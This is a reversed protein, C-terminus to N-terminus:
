GLAEALLAATTAVLPNDTPANEEPQTTLVALVIPTGDPRWTIGVDNAGGYRPSGTKDALLWDAPLGRRFKETSTTNRLLWDTLRRRDDPELADGLVLRAYDLGIAHPTTTDTVRWPEASNLEPEWRDLRTVPDGISRCFRTVGTPGGLEKLLLNGAANDSFRLTADCLEAVTMGGSVNEDLGTVPSYGSRDVYAQSYHVRRALYEGDHDLDRLVAAVALTKFVSAMPFREKARYAVTRGTRLDRAFVGLRATHERELRRLRAVVGGAEPLAQATGGGLALATTLATGAGLALATRRSPGSGDSHM